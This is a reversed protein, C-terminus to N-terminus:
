TTIFSDFCGGYSVHSLYFGWVLVISSPPFLPVLCIIVILSELEWGGTPCVTMWWPYNLLRCFPVDQTSIVLSSCIFFLNNLRWSGLLYSSKEIYQMYMLEQWTYRTRLFGKELHRPWHYWTLIPVPIWCFHYWIMGQDMAWKWSYSISLFVVTLSEKGSSSCKEASMNFHQAFSCCISLIVSKM